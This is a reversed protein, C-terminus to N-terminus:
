IFHFDNQHAFIQATTVQKLTITDHAADTIVANGAADDHTGALLAHVDAFVTKSFQITDTAPAFNSITVQGFHPAFVFTDHPTIAVVSTQGVAAQVIMGSNVLQFNDQLSSVTASKTAAPVGIVGDGNLDLNFVTEIQKFATSNGPGAPVINALYSGNSDTSWVTYVGNAPDHWAVDYGTATQVAAIPAWTAWEGVTVATGGKTLEPGTGSSTNNLFFNSGVEVLATSGSTAITTGAIKPAGITGDGNLDLNFVTEISEFATSNGPGVPVINALKNGNSDGGDISFSAASAPTNNSFLLSPSSSGISSAPALIPRSPPAATM